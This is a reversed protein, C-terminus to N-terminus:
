EGGFVQLLEVQAQPAIILVYDRMDQLHRTV